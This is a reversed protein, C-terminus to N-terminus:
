ICTSQLIDFTAKKGKDINDIAPKKTKHSIHLYGLQRPCGQKIIPQPDKTM